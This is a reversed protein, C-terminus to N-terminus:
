LRHDTRKRGSVHLGTSLDPVRQEPGTHGANCTCDSRKGSKAPSTSNSSPCEKCLAENSLSIQDSYKGSPCASCTASGNSSKYEGFGCATCAAGNSGTYGPKCICSTLSISASLSLSNQPCDTCEASGVVDKYKGIACGQCIQGSPATLGRGCNCDELKDSGAASTSGFELGPCDICASM